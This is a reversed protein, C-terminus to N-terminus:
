YSKSTNSLNRRCRSRPRRCKRNLGLSKRLSLSRNPRNRRYKRTSPASPTSSDNNKSIGGSKNQSWLDSRFPVTFPPPTTVRVGYM